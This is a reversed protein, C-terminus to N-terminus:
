LWKNRFYWQITDDFGLRLDFRPAFGLWAALRRDRAVWDEHFLERVKGASLIAPQGTARALSQQM